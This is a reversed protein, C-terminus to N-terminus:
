KSRQVGSGSSQYCKWKSCGNERGTDERFDTDCGVSLIHIIVSIESRSCLEASLVSIVINLV